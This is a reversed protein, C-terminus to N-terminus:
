SYIGFCRMHWFVLCIGFTLMAYALFRLVQIGFPLTQARPVTRLYRRLWLTAPPRRGISSSVACGPCGQGATPTATTATGPTRDVPTRMHTTLRACLSRPGNCTSFANSRCCHINTAMLPDDSCHRTVSHSSRIMLATSPISRTLPSRIMLATVPTVPSLKGTNM